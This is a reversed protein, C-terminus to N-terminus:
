KIFRITIYLLIDSEAFSVHYPHLSPHLMSQCYSPIPLRYQSHHLPHIMRSETLTEIHHKLNSHIDVDTNSKPLFELTIHLPTWEDLISEINQAHPM